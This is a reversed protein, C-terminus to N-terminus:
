LIMSTTTSPTLRRTVCRESNAETSWRLLPLTALRVSSMRSLITSSLCFLQAGCPPDYIGSARAYAGSRGKATVQCRVGRARASARDPRARGLAGSTEVVLAARRLLRELFVLVREAPRRECAAREGGLDGRVSEVQRGSRGLNCHRPIAQSFAAASRHIAVLAAGACSGPHDPTDDRGSSRTRILRPFHGLRGRWFPAPLVNGNAGTEARRPFTSQGDEQGRGRNGISRSCACDRCSWM